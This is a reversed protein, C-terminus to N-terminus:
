QAPLQILQMDDIYIHKGAPYQRAWVGARISVAGKPPTRVDMFTACTQWRGAVPTVSTTGGNPLNHNQEDLCRLSLDVFGGEDQGEPLFLRVVLCYRGPAFDVAQHPGGYQVGEAIIGYEGSHVADEHRTLSGVADQLWYSYGTAQAGTGEEFSGNSNIPSFEGDLVMLAARDRICM